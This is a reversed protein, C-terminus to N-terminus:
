DAQYAKDLYPVFMQDEVAWMDWSQRMSGPYHREYDVGATDAWRQWEVWLTYAKL